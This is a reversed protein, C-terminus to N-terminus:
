PAVRGTEVLRRLAELEARLEATRRELAQVALLSIGDADVTSITTPGAGLKFAAHFDEATPGVHSADTGRYRWRQIPMAALKRLVIEGDLDEFGVKALRSSTCSFTGSGPALDCGTSLGSNTRFRFGGSARVVFENTLATILEDSSGDGYAFSGRGFAASRRGLATTYDGIATTAGGMATSGHGLAKTLEGMAVSAFGSAATASGIATATLGSAVSLEGLATSNNATARTRDGLATSADGSATTNEGMAVSGNGVSIDDWETDNARGARFAFKGPYWMLRTGPGRMPIVGQGERGLAVLGGDDNVEMLTGEDANEVELLPTQAAISTPWWLLGAVIGILVLVEPRRVLRTM